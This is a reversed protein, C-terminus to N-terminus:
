QIIYSDFLKFLTINTSETNRRQLENGKAEGSFSAGTLINM